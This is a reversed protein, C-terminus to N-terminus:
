LPLLFYVAAVILVTWRWVTGGRFVVRQRRPPAIGEPAAQTVAAM